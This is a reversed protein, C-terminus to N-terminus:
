TAAVHVCYGHCIPAQGPTIGLCCHRWLCVCSHSSEVCVVAATVRAEHRAAAVRAECPTATVRAVAIRAVTIRAEDRAVTIRAAAVRAESRAVAVRAM